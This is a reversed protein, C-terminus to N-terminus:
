QPKSSPQDPPSPQVSSFLIKGWTSIYSLCNFPMGGLFIEYFGLDKSCLRGWLYWQCISATDSWEPLYRLWRERTFLCLKYTWFCRAQFVPYEAGYLRKWSYKISGGWWLFPIDTIKICHLQVETKWCMESDEFGGHFVIVFSYTKPHLSSKKESCLPYIMIWLLWFTFAIWMDLSLHISLFFIAYVHVPINNWRKPLFPIRVSAIAHIFSSSM